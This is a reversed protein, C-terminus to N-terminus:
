LDFFMQTQRIKVLPPQSQGPHTITFLRLWLVRFTSICGQYIESIKGILGGQLM